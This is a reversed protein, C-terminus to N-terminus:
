AILSTLACTDTTARFCAQEYQAAVEEMCYKEYVPERHPSSPSRPSLRSGGYGAMGHSTDQLMKQAAARNPEVIGHGAPITGSKEQLILLKGEWVQAKASM